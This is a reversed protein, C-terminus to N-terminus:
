LILSLWLSAIRCKLHVVLGGPGYSVVEANEMAFMQIPASMPYSYTRM